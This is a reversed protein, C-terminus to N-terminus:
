SQAVNLPAIGARNYIDLQECMNNQAEKQLWKYFLDVAMMCEGPGTGSSIQLWITEM